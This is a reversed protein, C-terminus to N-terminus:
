HPLRFFWYLFRSVFSFIVLLLAAWVLVLTLGSLNQTLWILLLVGAELALYSLFLLAAWWYDFFLVLWMSAFLFLCGTTAMFVAVAENANSLAATLFVWSVFITAWFFVLLMSRITSFM